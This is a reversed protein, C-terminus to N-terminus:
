ICTKKHNHQTITVEGKRTTKKICKKNGTEVCKVNYANYAYSIHMRQNTVEEKNKNDNLRMCVQMCMCM